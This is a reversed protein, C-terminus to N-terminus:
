VSQLGEIDRELLMRQTDVFDFREIFKEGVDHNRAWVRIKKCGLQTAWELIIPFATDYLSKREGEWEEDIEIQLIMLLPDGGYFREISAVLHGFVNGNDVGAIVLTYPTDSTMQEMLHAALDDPKVDSDYAECFTKIREIVAPGYSGVNGNSKYIVQFKDNMEM